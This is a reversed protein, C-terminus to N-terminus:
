LFRFSGIGSANITEACSNLFATVYEPSKGEKVKSVIEDFIAETNDPSLSAWSKFSGFLSYSSARMVFELTMDFTELGGRMLARLATGSASEGQDYLDLLVGTEGSLDTGLIETALNVATFNKHYENSGFALQRLTERFEQNDMINAVQDPSTM